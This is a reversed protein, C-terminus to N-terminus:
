RTRPSAAGASGGGQIAAVTAEDLDGSSPLQRDRQFNWVARRFAPNMVGDLAGRYYGQETLKQQMTRVGADRSPQAFSDFADRVPDYDWGRAAVPSTAALVSLCGIVIIRKM